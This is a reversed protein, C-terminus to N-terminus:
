DQYSNGRHGRETKQQEDGGRLQDELMRMWLFMGDCRDVMRKSLEDRQVESKNALKRVLIDRSYSTADSQVDESSIKYEVWTRSENNALVSQYAARIELEDRSIIMIRTKTRASAQQITAFFETASDSGPKNLNDGLWTCEDIGDVIFTCNPIEEMIRGFIEITDSRTITQGDQVEWKERTIRFAESEQSLLQGIWSRVVVYPDGRSESDSSFFYYAIPSELTTSLYEIVTACLMTKGYGASGNLWLTKVTGSPYHPSVWDLFAARQLIWGCTGDLRRRICDDYHDETSPARLWTALDRRIEDTAM